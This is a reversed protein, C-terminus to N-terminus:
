NLRFINNILGRAGKIMIQGLRFTIISHLRLKYGMQNFQPELKISPRATFESKHQLVAIIPSLITWVVGVTLATTMPDGTGMQAQVKFVRIEQVILHFDDLLSRLGRSITSAFKSLTEVSVEGEAHAFPDSGFGFRTQVSSGVWKLMSMNLPLHVFGLGVVVSFEDDNDTSDRYYKIELSYTVLFVAVCVGLILVVFLGLLM